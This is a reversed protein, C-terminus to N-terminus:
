VYFSCVASLVQRPESCPVEQSDRPFPSASSTGLSSSLSLPSRQAMPLRLGATRVRSLSGDLELHDNYIEMDRNGRQLVVLANGEEWASEAEGVKRSRNRLFLAGREAANAAGSFGFQSQNGLHYKLVFVSLLREYVISRGRGPVLFTSCDYGLAGWVEGAFGSFVFYESCFAVITIELYFGLHWFKGEQWVFFLHM